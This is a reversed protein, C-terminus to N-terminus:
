AAAELAARAARLGRLTIEGAPVMGVVAGQGRLAGAYLAALPDDGIVALRREGWLTRTAALEAGILLGSLRAWAVDGPLDSLLAEARLPFLALPLAEPHAIAEALGRAFAAEDWGASISHRLLSRETLLAFIEGTMTTRFHAVRGETVRVWKCHTGPLCLVGDFGPDTALFGAIQTEEGRMVDAPASQCLGPLIHVQLRRDATEVAVAHTGAPACPIPLYAAERWGTRAGAMGCVLVPLRATGPLLDGLLDLLVGEYETSELAGMGRPSRREALVAGNGDLAWLRMNSTGWDVAIWAPRM